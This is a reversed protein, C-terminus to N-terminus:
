EFEYVEEFDVGWNCQLYGKAVLHAKYHEINGNADRKIKYVWTMSLAKFGSALKELEWMRNQLLSVFEKDM